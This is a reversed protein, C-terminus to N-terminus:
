LFVGLIFIRWKQVSTSSPGYTYIALTAINNKENNNQNKM